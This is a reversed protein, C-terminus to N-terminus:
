NAPSGLQVWPLVFYSIIGGAILGLYIICQLSTWEAKKAFEYDYKEFVLDGENRIESMKHILKYSSGQFGHNYVHFKRDILLFILMLITLPISIFLLNRQRLSDLHRIMEEIQRYVDSIIRLKEEPELSTPLIIENMGTPIIDKAM